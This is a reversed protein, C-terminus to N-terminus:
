DASCADCNSSCNTEDVADFLENLEEESMAQRVLIM